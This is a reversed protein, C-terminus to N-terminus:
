KMSQYCKLGRRKAAVSMNFDFFCIGQQVIWNGGCAQCARVKQATARSTGGSSRSAERRRRAADEREAKRAEAALRRETAAVQRQRSASWSTGYIPEFREILREARSVSDDALELKIAADVTPRTDSKVRSLTSSSGSAQGRDVALLIMEQWDDRTGCQPSKVRAAISRAMATDHLKQEAQHWSPSLADAYASRVTRLDSWSAKVQRAGYTAGDSARCETAAAVRKQLAAASSHVHRAVSDARDCQAIYPSITTLFSPMSQSDQFAALAGLEQDARACLAAQLTRSEQPCVSETAVVWQSTHIPLRKQAVKQATDGQALARCAWGPLEAYVAQTDLMKSLAIGAPVPPPWRRTVQTWKFPPAYRADDARVTLSVTTTPEPHPLAQLMWWSGLEPASLQVLSSSVTSQNALGQAGPSMPAGSLGLEALSAQISGSSWDSCGVREPITRRKTQRYRSSAFGFAALDLALVGGTVALTLDRQSAYRAPTMSRNVRSNAWVSGLVLSGIALDVGAGAWINDTGGVPSISEVLRFSDSSDARYSVRQLTDRPCTDRSSVAVEIGEPRVVPASLRFDLKDPSGDVHSQATAGQEQLSQNRKHAVGVASIAGCAPVASVASVLPVALM